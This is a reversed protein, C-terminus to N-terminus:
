AIQNTLKQNVFLELARTLSMLNPLNRNCLHRYVQAQISRSYQSFESGLEVVMGATKLDPQSYRFAKMSMKVSQVPLGIMAAETVEPKALDAHRMHNREPRPM